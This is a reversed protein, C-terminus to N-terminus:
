NFNPQPSLGANIFQQNEESKRENEAAIGLKESAQKIIKDKNKIRSAELMPIILIESLIPNSKVVESLMRMELENMNAFPLEEKIVLDHKLAEKMNIKVSSEDGSDNITIRKFTKDPETIRIIRKKTYFQGAMLLSVKAIRKKTFYLNEIIPTQMMAGQQIRGGEQVGSRANTGGFGISADNIGSIRQAMSWLFQLMTMQHNAEPLNDTLRIKSLGGENLEIVCNPNNIEDKATTPDVLAGTEHFLRSSSVNWIWKSLSKNMSDNLPIINKLVGVPRGKKDRNAIFPIFTYDNFEYPSENKDDDEEDGELFITSSFVVHRMKKKADRYFCENISIRRSKQKPDMYLSSDSSLRNEQEQGHFQNFKEDSYESSLEEKHESWKDIAMDRDMWVQRIIYRADSKDPKRSYPDFVIEEWPRLAIEISDEGTNLDESKFLEVWGIGGISGDKALEHLQYDLEANEFINLLVQTWTEADIDDSQEVGLVSYDTQRQREIALFMNIIISCINIVSAQQYRDELEQEDKPDWQNGDYYDWAKDAQERQEILNDRGEKLMRHFKHDVTATNQTVPM